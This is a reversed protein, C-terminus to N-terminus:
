RINRKQPSRKEKDLSFLDCIFADKTRVAGGAYVTKKRSIFLKKAAAVDRGIQESLADLSPFTREERLRSLLAVSLDQGYLSPSEDLIYTEVTRTKGAM